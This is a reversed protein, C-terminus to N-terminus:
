EWYTQYTHYESICLLLLHNWRITDTLNCEQVTLSYVENM